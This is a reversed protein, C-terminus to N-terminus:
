RHTSYEGKKGTGVGCYNKVGKYIAKCDKGFSQIEIKGDNNLRYYERSGKGRYSESGMVWGESTPFAAENDSSFIDIMLGQHPIMAKGTALIAIKGEYGNDYSIIWTGVLKNILKAPAPIPDPQSESRIVDTAHSFHLHLIFLTYSLFFFLNFWVRTDM